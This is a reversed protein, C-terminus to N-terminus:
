STPILRHYSRTGIISGIIASLFVVDIAADVAYLEMGEFNSFWWKIRDFLFLALLFLAIGRSKLYLGWACFAYLLAFIAWIEKTEWTGEWFFILFMYYIVWFSASFLGLYM